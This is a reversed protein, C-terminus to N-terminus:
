EMQNNPYQPRCNTTQWQATSIQRYGANALNIVCEFSNVLEGGRITGAPAAPRQPYGGNNAGRGQQPASQDHGGDYRNRSYQDEAPTAAQIPPPIRNQLDDEPNYADTASPDETPPNETTVPEDESTGTTTERVQRKSRQRSPDATKVEVRLM